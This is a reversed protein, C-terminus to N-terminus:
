NVPLSFSFRSGEGPTSRAWIHGNHAEMITRCIYLGLGAGSTSRTFRSDVRHFREFVRELESEPIGIGSDTVSVIVCPFRVAPVEGLAEELEHKGHAQWATVEIDGGEPSYKIANALLNTMVQEIKQRDVNVSPLPDVLHLRIVHKMTQSQAESVPKRLLDALSTPEVILNPPAVEYRSVDRLDELLHILRDTASGIGQVYQRKQEETIADALRLLTATYGKILTLPSLLEHSLVSVTDPEAHKGQEATSLDYLVPIGHEDKHRPMTRSQTDGDGLFYHSDMERNHGRDMQEQGPTNLQKLALDIMPTKETDGISTELRGVSDLADEPGSDPRSHAEYLAASMWETLLTAAALAQKGPSFAQGSAFLLAGLLSGDRDRWPVLWLTRIGERHAPKRLSEFDSSDPLYIVLYRETRELAAAILGEEQEKVRLLEVFYRSLNVSAGISLHHKIPDSFFIVCSEVGPILHGLLPVTLIPSEGSDGGAPRAGIRKLLALQEDQLAAADSVARKSLPRVPQETTLESSGESNVVSTVKGKQKPSMTRRAM